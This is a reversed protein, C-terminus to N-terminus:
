EVIGGALVRTVTVTGQVDLLSSPVSAGIGIRKNVDDWFLEGIDTHVWQSLTDDWFVLQGQATGFELRSDILPFLQM